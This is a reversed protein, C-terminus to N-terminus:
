PPLATGPKAATRPRFIVLGVGLAVNLVMGVTTNAWSEIGSVSQFLGVLLDIGNLLILGDIVAAYRAPDRIAAWLVFSLGLIIAAVHRASAADQGMGAKVLQDPIFLDVLGYLTFLLANIFLVVKLGRM